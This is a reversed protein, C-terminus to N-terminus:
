VVLASFFLSFHGKLAFNAFRPSASHLLSCSFDSKVQKCSNQVISECYPHSFQMMSKHFTRKECCYQSFFKDFMEHSVILHNYVLRKCHFLVLNAQSSFIKQLSIQTIKADSGYFRYPQETHCGRNKEHLANWCGYNKKILNRWRGIKEDMLWTLVAFTNYAKVRTEKRVKNVAM